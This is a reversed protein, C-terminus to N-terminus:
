ENTPDASAKEESRAKLWQLYATTGLAIGTGVAVSVFFVGTTERFGRSFGHAFGKIYDRNLDKLLDQPIEFVQGTVKHTAKFTPIITETVDM